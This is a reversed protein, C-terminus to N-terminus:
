GSRLPVCLNLFCEKHGKCRKARKAISGPIKSKVKSKESKIQGKGTKEEKGNVM